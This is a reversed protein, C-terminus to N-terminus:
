YSFAIFGYMQSRCPVYLIYESDNKGYYYVANVGFSVSERLTYSIGGQLESGPCDLSLLNSVNIGLSNVFLNSAALSVGFYKKGYYSKNYYALANMNNQIIIKINDGEEKNFGESRFAYEARASYNKWEWVIGNSLAFHRKEKNGINLVEAFYQENRKKIIGELYFRFANLQFSNNQGIFWNKRKEYYLHTSSYINNADIEIQGGANVDRWNKVDSFWLFTGLSVSPSAVWDFQVLDAAQRETRGFILEKPSLRNSFNHFVAMGYQIERKGFTLFTYDSIPTKIYLQKIDLSSYNPQSIYRLKCEYQSKAFGGGTYSFDGYLSSFYDKWEVSNNIIFSKNQIQYGKVGLLDFGIESKKDKSDQAFILLRTLLLVSVIFLPKKSM